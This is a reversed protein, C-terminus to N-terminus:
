KMGHSKERTMSNKKEGLQSSVILSWPPLVACNQSVTEGRLSSVRSRERRLRVDLFNNKPQLDQPDKQWHSFLLLFIFSLIFSNHYFLFTLIVLLFYAVWIGPFFPPLTVPLIYSVNELLMSWCNLSITKNLVTLSWKAKKMTNEESAPKLRSDNLSRTTHGGSLDMWLGINTTESPVQSCELLHLFPLKYTSGHHDSFYKLQM